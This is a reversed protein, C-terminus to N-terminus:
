VIRARDAQLSRWNVRTGSPRLCKKADIVCVASPDVQLHSDAKKVTVTPEEPLSTSKRRYRRNTTKIFRQSWFEKWQDVRM